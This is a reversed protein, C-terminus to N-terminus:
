LEELFKLYEATANPLKKLLELARETLFGNSKAFRLPSKKPLKGLGSCCNFYNVFCVRVVPIWPEPVEYFCLQEVVLLLSEYYVKCDASKKLSAIQNLQKALFFPKLLADNGTDNENRFYRFIMKGVPSDVKYPVRIVTSNPVKVLKRNKVKLVPRKTTVEYYDGCWVISQGRSWDQVEGRYGVLFDSNFQCRRSNSECNIVLKKSKLCNFELEGSTFDWYNEPFFFTNCELEGLTTPYEGKEDSEAFVTGIENIKRKSFYEWSANAVLGDNFGLFELSSYFRLEEIKYLLRNLKLIRVSKPVKFTMKLTRKLVEGHNLVNIKGFDLTNFLEPLNICRTSQSFSDLAVLVTGRRSDESVIGLFYPAVDYKLPHFVFRKFESKTFFSEKFCKDVLEKAEVISDCSYGIEELKEFFNQHVLLTLRSLVDMTGNFYFDRKYDPVKENLEVKLENCGIFLKLSENFQYSLEENSEFEKVLRELLSRLDIRYDPIKFLTTSSFYQLVDFDEFGKPLNGIISLLPGTLEFRNLKLVQLNKCKKIALRFCSECEVNLETFSEGLTKAYEYDFSKVKLCNSVIVSKLRRETFVKFLKTYFFFIPNCHVSTCQLGLSRM